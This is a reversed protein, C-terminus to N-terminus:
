PEVPQKQYIRVTPNIFEVDPDLWPLREYHFEAVQRYSGRGEFLQKFFHDDPGTPDDIFRDYWFSSVVLLDPARAELGEISPDFHLLEASAQAQAREFWGLYHRESPECLGISEAVSKYRLYIPQLVRYLSAEELNLIDDTLNRLMPRKVIVFREAPLRPGYPTVEIQSGRAANEMVWAAAQNRGDFTFQLEANITCLGSFLLTVTLLGYGLPRRRGQASAPDLLDSIMKGVLVLLPPIMPLVHRITAYHLNRILMFYIFISSLLFLIQPVDRKALLRMIAYLLALVVVPIVPLGVGDAIAGFVLLESSQTVNEDVTSNYANDLVFGEFFECSAFFVPPNAVIFTGVAAAIGLALHKFQHERYRFLYSVVLTLIAIGGVYKTGAAMGAFIGAFLYDRFRGGELVRASMVYSALMWFLMPIDVTAFHAINVMGVSIASLLASALAVTQNFLTRALFYTLAVCGAALVASLVRAALYVATKQAEFSFSSLETLLYTPVIVLLQLYYHMSGYLYSHPNLTYDRAMAVSRSVLEDPHWADPLGFWVGWLNLTLSLALIAWVPAPMTPETQGSDDATPKTKMRSLEAFRSGSSM